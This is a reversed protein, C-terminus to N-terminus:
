CKKSEGKQLLLLKLRTNAKFANTSRILKNSSFGRLVSKKKRHIKYLTMSKSAHTVPMAGHLKRFFSSSM